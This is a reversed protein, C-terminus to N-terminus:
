AIPVHCDAFCLTPLRQHAQLPFPVRPACTLTAVHAAPSPLPKFYDGERHAASGAVLAGKNGLASGGQRLQILRPQFWLWPAPGKFYVMKTKLCLCSVPHPDVRGQNTLPPQSSLVSLRFGSILHCPTAHPPCHPRHISIPQCIPTCPLTTNKSAKCEKVQDVTPISLLYRWYRWVPARTNQTTSQPKFGPGSFTNAHTTDVHSPSPAALSSTCPDRGPRIKKQTSSNIVCDATHHKSLPPTKCPTSPQEHAAPKFAHPLATHSPHTFRAPDQRQWRELTSNPTDTKLAHRFDLAPHTHSPQSHM